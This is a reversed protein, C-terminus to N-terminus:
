TVAPNFHAGSAGGYVYVLTALVFVHVLGVVAFETYGLGAKSQVALVMGIFFVLLLTGLFEAVYAAPGRDEVQREKREIALRRLHLSPSPPLRAGGMPRASVKSEM